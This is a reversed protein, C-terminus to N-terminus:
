LTPKNSNFQSALADNPGPINNIGPITNSGMMSMGNNEGEVMNDTATTQRGAGTMGMQQMAVQANVPDAEENLDEMHNRVINQMVQTYHYSWAQKQDPKIDKGLYTRLSAMFSLRALSDRRKEKPNLDVKNGLM